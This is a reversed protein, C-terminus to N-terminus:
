LWNAMCKALKETKQSKEQLSQHAANFTYTNEDRALFNEILYSNPFGIDRLKFYNCNTFEDKLIAFFLM